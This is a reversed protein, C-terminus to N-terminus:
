KISPTIHIHGDGFPFPSIYQQRLHSRTMTM